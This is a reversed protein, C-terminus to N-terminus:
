KEDDKDAWKQKYKGMEYGRRYANGIKHDYEEDPCWVQLYFMESTENYYRNGWQYGIAIGLCFLYLILGAFIIKM